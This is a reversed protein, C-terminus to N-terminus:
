DSTAVLYGFTALLIGVVLLAAGLVVRLWPPNDRLLLLGSGGIGLAVVFVLATTDIV